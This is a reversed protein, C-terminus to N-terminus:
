DPLYFYATHQLLCIQNSGARKARLLAEQSQQILLDPSFVDKNPYFSAGINLDFAVEGMTEPMRLERVRRWLRGTVVMAGTFHTRPLLVVFQNEALRVLLDFDRLLGKLGAGLHKVAHHSAPEGFRDRVVELNLLEVVLCSLPESYREARSFEEHLREKLYHGNYLGTHPDIFVPQAFGVPEAPVSDQLGKIRLLTAIRAILEEPPAQKSLYADAGQRLGELKSQLDDKATLMIVPLFGAQRSKLLRCIEYGAMEPLVVDLIVLDPHDQRLKFLAEKGDKALTVLYGQNGLLQDFHNLIKQDDDVVLIRAM